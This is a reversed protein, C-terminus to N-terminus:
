AIIIVSGGLAGLFLVRRRHADEAAEDFPRATGPDADSPPADFGEDGDVDDDEDDTKRRGLLKPLKM